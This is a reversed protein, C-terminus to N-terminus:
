EAQILITAETGKGPESKILLEGNVTDALRKRVNEIGVHSRMGDKESLESLDFGVGNDTVSIIVTDGQRKTKLTITGGTDSQCIGHKVANEVLPQVTLPPLFFDKEGIDYVVNLRDDFRMKELKLYTDIHTLEKSFPILKRSTLSDMNGRLYTSFDGLAESAREPDQLCLERIAAISNYLFHPQIQSLMISVRSEALEAEQKRLKKEQKVYEFLVNIGISVAYILFAALSFFLKSSTGSIYFDAIDLIGGAAVILLLKTSNYRKKWGKYRLDDYILNAAIIFASVILVIHTLFLSERLDAAGLLQLLLQVLCVLTVGICCFDFVTRSKPNFSREIAKFLPVPILMLMTVSIYFLLAPKEDLAFHTLRTDTLKWLGVMVSFVGLALLSLANKRKLKIINYFAVGIFAFGAFIILSSMVLLPLDDSIRGAYIGYKSGFLFEVERDIFSKYVPIIEVTIEKEADERYVPIVVWNSGVTKGIANDSSKTLSYVKQHDMYVNVYQHVVYFGLYADTMKVKDTKLHYQKVIGLPTGEREIENVTYALTVCGTDQRPSFVETNRVVGLYVLMGLILVGVIAAFVTATKSLASANMKFKKM